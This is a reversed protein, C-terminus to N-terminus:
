ETPVDNAEIVMGAFVALPVPVIFIVGISSETTSPSSDIVIEPLVVAATPKDTLSAVIM